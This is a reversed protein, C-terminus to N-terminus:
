NSLNRNDPTQATTSELAMIPTRPLRDRENEASAHFDAFHFYFPPYVGKLLIMKIFLKVLTKTSKFTLKKRKFLRITNMSFIVSLVVRMLPSFSLNQLSDPLKRSRYILPDLRYLREVADLFYRQLEVPSMNQPKFVVDRVNYREHDRILIRGEDELQRYLETGPFPTLVNPIAQLVNHEEMFDIIKNHSDKTDGDSGMVFTLMPILGHKHCNDIAKGYNEPKNMTKGVANLTEQDLGEVGFLLHVCNAKQFAALLEDDLGASINVQTYWSIVGQKREQLDALAECIALAHKRDFAFNDDCIYFWGLQKKVKGDRKDKVLLGQDPPLSNEIERIVQEVSKKRMKHGNMLFVSCFKCKYPCGRSSQILQLNYQGQPMLDYRPPPLKTIDSYEEQQYTPKLRGEVCDALIQPWIEEAEGIVVSDVHKAAEDPLMSAHIGGMIVPIKKNRFKRAIEYARNAKFTIGTLGVVDVDMDYDIEQIMEDVIIVEHEPPTVAALTPLALPPASDMPLAKKGMLFVGFYDSSFLEREISPPNAPNILLIKM